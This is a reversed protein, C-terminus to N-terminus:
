KAPQLIKSLEIVELNAPKRVWNHRWCVIVDCEGPDHGHLAFNRSEYEFEIRVRQWKGPQIQRRAECDPFDGRLSEVQFGLQGALMGFLFIVGSENMPANTLVSRDFPPGMVPRECDLVGGSTIAGNLRALAVAGHGNVAVCAISPKNDHAARVMARNESKLTPCDRRNQCDERDPAEDMMVQRWKRGAEDGMLTNVIMACFADTVRRKGAMAAWQRAGAKDRETAAAPSLLPAPALIEGANGTEGAQLPRAEPRTAAAARAELREALLPVKTWGGFRGCFTTIAYRGYQTYDHRDPVKGLQDRVRLWDALLAEEPIKMGKQPPELGAARLAERISGFHALLMSYSIGAVRPLEGRKPPRGLKRTARRLADLVRKRNVSIRKVPM